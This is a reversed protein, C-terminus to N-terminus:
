SFIKILNMCTVPDNSIFSKVPEIGCCNHSESSCFGAYMRIVSQLGSPGPLGGFTSHVHQVSQKGSPYSLRDIEFRIINSLDNDVFFVAYLNINYNILEEDTRFKGYTYWNERHQLFIYFEKSCM